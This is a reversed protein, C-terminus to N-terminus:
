MVHSFRLSEAVACSQELFDHATASLKRIVGSRPRGKAESKVSCLCATLVQIMHYRYFEILSLM